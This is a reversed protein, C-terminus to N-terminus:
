SMAESDAATRAARSLAASVPAPRVVQCRDGRRGPVPGIGTGPVPGIGAQCRGPLRIREAAYVPVARCAAVDRHTM